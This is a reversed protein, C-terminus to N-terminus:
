HVGPVRSVGVQELKIEPQPTTPIAGVSQSTTQTAQQDQSQFPLNPLQLPPVSPKEAQQIPQHNEVSRFVPNQTAAPPIYVPKEQALPITFSITTGKGEESELFISGGHAEVIGKSVYLGLGTGAEKPSLKKNKVQGFKSFLVGQQEPPIGIGTDSVSVMIGPNTKTTPLSQNRHYVARVTISGNEPTFKLANSILNNIVQGIRNSDIFGQPLRDDIQASLHIKKTTATTGFLTVSEDVLKKVDVDKQLVSFKGTEIKAADLLSNIDNLMRESQHIIIDIFKAQEEPLTKDAAILMASGKIATLPSRLEHVVENTFDEKLQNLSKEVTIDHFVLSVGIVKVYEQKTREDMFNAVVPTIDIQVTKDGITVEPEHLTKNDRKAQQIKDDIPLSNALEQMVEFLSPSEKHLRLIDKANNNIVQIVDNEDIMIIGDRLSTILSSLRRKENEIVERFKSVTECALTMTQYLVTMAEHSYTNPITSAFSIVGVPITNLIIPIHFYSAVEETANTYDLLNGQVKEELRVNPSYSLFEHTSALMSKKVSELFQKSVSDSVITELFMTDQTVAISSLTSFPVLSRMSERLISVIKNTNYSYDIEKQVYELVSLEYSKEQYNKEQNKLINKAKKQSNFFILALMAFFATAAFSTYVLIMIPLPM